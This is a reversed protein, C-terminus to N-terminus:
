KSNELNRRWHFLYQQAIGANKGLAALDIGDPFYKELARKMWVDLPFADGHGLSFLLICDAVKPGVGPLELLQARVDLTKMDYWEDFDVKGEVALQTM